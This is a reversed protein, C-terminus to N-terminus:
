KITEFEVSLHKYAIYDSKGHICIMIKSYLIAQYHTLVVDSHLVDDLKTIVRVKSKNYKGRKM